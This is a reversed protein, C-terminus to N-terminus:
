SLGRYAVVRASLRRDADQRIWLVRDGISATLVAWIPRAARLAYVHAANNSGGYMQLYKRQELMQNLLAAEDVGLHSRIQDIWALCKSDIVVPAL